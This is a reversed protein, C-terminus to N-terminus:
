CDVVWCCSAFPAFSSRALFATSPQAGAAGAGEASAVRFLRALKAALDTDLGGNFPEEQRGKQKEKADKADREKSSMWFSSDRSFGSGCPHGLKCHKVGGQDTPSTRCKDNSPVAM